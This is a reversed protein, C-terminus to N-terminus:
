FIGHIDQRLNVKAVSQTPCFNVHREDVIQNNLMLTLLQNIEEVALDPGVNLTQTTTGSLEALAVQIVEGCSKYMIKRKKDTHARLEDQM